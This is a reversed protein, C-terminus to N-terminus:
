YVPKLREPVNRETRADFSSQAIGKSYTVLRDLHELEDLRRGIIFLVIRDVGLLLLLAIELAGHLCRAWRTKPLMCPIAILVCPCIMFHRWPPGHALPVRVMTTEWSSQKPRKTITRHVLLLVALRQRRRLLLELLSDVAVTEVLGVGLLLVLLRHLVERRGRLVTVRDDRGRILQRENAHEVPLVEAQWQAIGSSKRYEAHM